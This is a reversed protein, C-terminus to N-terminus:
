YIDKEYLKIKKDREDQKNKICRRWSARILESCDDGYDNKENNCKLCTNFFTQMNMNNKAKNCGEHLNEMRERICTLKNLNHYPNIPTNYNNLSTNHFILFLLLM